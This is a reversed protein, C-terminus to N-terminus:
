RSRIPVRTPGPQVIEIQDRELNWRLASATVTAINGQRVEVQRRGGPMDRLMVTQNDGTYQLQDALYTRPGAIVRVDKEALITQLVPQPSSTSFWM